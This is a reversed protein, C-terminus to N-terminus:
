IHQLSWGATHLGSLPENPAFTKIQKYLHLQEAFDLHCQVWCACHLRLWAFSHKFRRANDMQGCIPHSKSGPCTTCERGRQHNPAPSLHSQADSQFQRYSKFKKQGRWFNHPPENCVGTTPPSTLPAYWHTKEHTPWQSHHRHQRTCDSGEGRHHQIGASFHTESPVEQDDGQRLGCPIHEDELEPWLIQENYSWRTGFGDKQTNLFSQTTNHTFVTIIDRYKRHKTDCESNEKFIM